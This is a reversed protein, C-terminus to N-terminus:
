RWIIRRRVGWSEPRWEAAASVARRMQAFGWQVRQRELLDLAELGDHAPAVVNNAAALQAGPLKLNAGNDDIIRMNM